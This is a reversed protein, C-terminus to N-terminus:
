WLSSWTLFDPNAQLDPYSVQDPDNKM